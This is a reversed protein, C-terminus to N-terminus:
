EVGCPKCSRNPHQSVQWFILWQWGKVAHFRSRRTMRSHNCLWAQSAEAPLTADYTSVLLGWSLFPAVSELCRFMELSRSYQSSFEALSQQLVSLSSWCPCAVACVCVHSWNGRLWQRFLRHKSVPPFSSTWERELHAVTFHLTSNRVLDSWLTQWAPRWLLTTAAFSCLTWRGRLAGWPWFLGSLDNSM